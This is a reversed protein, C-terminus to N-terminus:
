RVPPERLSNVTTGPCPHRTLVLTSGRGIALRSSQDRVFEVAISYHTQAGYERCPERGCPDMEVKELFEGNADFFVIELHLLTDKMWFAASQPSGYVFVMGDGEGLDNVHALGRDRQNPTEALWLCLECSSGDARTLVAGVREFGVPQAGDPPLTPQGAVVEITTPM